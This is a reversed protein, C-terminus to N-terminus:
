GQLLGHFGMPNHSTSAWVNELCDSWLNRHPQGKGGLFIGPVWKQEQSFRDRPWLSAPLILDISFDLSWKPFRVWSSGAQLMNDLRYIQFRIRYFYTLIWNVQVEMDADQKSLSHLIHKSIKVRENSTRGRYTRSVVDQKMHTTSQWDAAIFYFAIQFFFFLYYLVCTHPQLFWKLRNNIAREEGM